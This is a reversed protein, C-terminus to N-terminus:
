DIDVWEIEKKFVKSKPNKKTSLSSRKSTAESNRKLSSSSDQSSCIQLAANSGTLQETLRKPRGFSKCGYKKKFQVVDADDTLTQRFNKLKNKLQWYWKEHGSGPGQKLHKYTNVLKQAIHMHSPPYLSYRSILDHFLITVLERNLKIKSSHSLLNYNEPSTYIEPLEPLTYELGFSTRSGTTIESHNNLLSPWKKKPMQIVVQNQITSSPESDDLITTCTYVETLDPLAYDLSFNATANLGNSDKQNQSVILSKQMSQNENSSSPQTGDNLSQRYNRFKNKLQLYWREYGSGSGCKLHEHMHVLKQAIHMYSPPYISYNRIVDHFLIAVLERNLKKKSQPSLSNYKEPNSYVEPLEPITYNLCFKTRSGSGPADKKRATTGYSKAVMHHITSNPHNHHFMDGVLIAEDSPSMTRDPAGNIGSFSSTTSVIPLLMNCSNSVIPSNLSCTNSIIPMTGEEALLCKQKIVTIKMKNQFVTSEDIDIEMEFDDDYTQYIVNEGTFYQLSVDNKLLSTFGSYTSDKLIVKKKREGYCLLLIIDSVSNM